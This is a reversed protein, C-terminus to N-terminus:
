INIKEFWEVTERYDDQNVVNMTEHPDKEYDYLERAIVPGETEGAKWDKEIWEVYRYRKSRYAYGMVPKGDQKRPYQSQAIKNVAKKSGNLLPTLDTGELQSPLELGALACLTPYIDVFETPSENKLGSKFGPARMIMTSRTAQEFNSHKCWMNHDSLHFGHDGWLVVVTNGELGQEKLANLVKGIQADVFSTTAYYGHLLELQKDEPIPGELPIDTYGNRLEGSNHYAIDPGYKAKQRYAALDFDSRNYLDWYKKPATFPLHPKHFGVALFFPKDQNALQKMEAIARQAHKGDRYADDPVEANETSPRSLEDRQDLPVRSNSKGEQAYLDGGVTIFPKSWSPVDQTNWGDCCRGDFIKGIGITQYGNQKFYQPLTVVNPLVERMRTEFDRVGNTDPRLGTLLSARSAGCVAQQCHANLFVTGSNGLKDMHPTKVMPNGYCGLLPKLDDVAIFLVNPKPKNIRKVCSLGTVLGGAALGGIRHLFHRRSVTSRKM